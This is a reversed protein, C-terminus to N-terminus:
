SRGVDTLPYRGYDEVAQQHARLHAPPFPMSQDPRCFYGGERGLQWMARRTELVIREVPGDMIVTTSVGGALAMRGQTLRRVNAVNNATAQVPNLVNIGLEMLDGVVEEVCGCSHFEILVGRSRFLEFLRRYEPMLFERMIKPGLLPGRQTGLDDSCFAMEMGCELYHRAVGLQFDMIRRLVDRVFEPETYFYMMLNEMGIVRYATEWLTSRHSGALFVDGGAFARRQDYIRRCIREDDPDPWRYDRRAGPEPLPHAQPFGMVGEQESRWVVGWIDSWVSGVPMCDGGEGDFGEHNAGLYALYHIPLGAVVREPHGFRIIELANEKQSLAM